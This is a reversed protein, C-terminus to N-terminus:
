LSEVDDLTRELTDFLADLENDYDWDEGGDVHTGLEVLATVQESTEDLAATWQRLEAEAEYGSVTPSVMPLNGLGVALALAAALGSVTRAVTWQEQRRRADRAANAVLTRVHEVCESGPEVAPLRDLLRMQREVDANLKDLETSM